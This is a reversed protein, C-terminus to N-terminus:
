QGHRSGSGSGHAGNSGGPAPAVAGTPFSNLVTAAATGIATFDATAGTMMQQAKDIVKAYKDEGTALYQAMAVGVATTAITSVNRLADAADQVAIAATQAVSQYAKGAGSTLVVNAHMTATQSQSIVDLVQSNVKANM